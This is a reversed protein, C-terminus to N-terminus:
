NMNAQCRVLAVALEVSSQLDLNFLIFLDLVIDSLHVNDTRYLGPLGGKLDVHRFSQGKVSPM